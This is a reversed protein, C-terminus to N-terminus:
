DEVSDDGLEHKLSSVEGVVVASSSFRDVSGFESVLVEVLLVGLWSEEGHGVSSGAGIAGLEEDGSDGAAPEVSLM